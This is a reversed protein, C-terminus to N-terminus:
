LAGLLEQMQLKWLKEFYGANVITIILHYPEKATGSVIETMDECGKKFNENAMKSVSLLM